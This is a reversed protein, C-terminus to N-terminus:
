QSLGIGADQVVKKWRALESRIREGLEEPSSAVPQLGMTELQKRFDAHALANRIEANLKDVIPRPTGAPALVGYWTTNNFGPYVEAIAPVDPLAKVRTPHGVAIARAKGSRIAPGTYPLGGFLAHIRGGMLDVLAPGGGKYAVHVFQAGSLATLLEIGLHNPTGAGPSGFLVKGPKEKALAVLEQVSKAPVSPHVILVFPADVVLGIPAFDKVPDYSVTTGYAPNVVLGGSTGLLLTYGDPSADAALGHGITAGAGPRNDVVVHQGLHATPDTSGGPPYPCIFRIPRNPYDDAATAAQLWAWGLLITLLHLCTVRPYRFM